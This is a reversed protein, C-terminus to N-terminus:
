CPSVGLDKVVHHRMRVTSSQSRNQVPKLAVSMCTLIAMFGEIQHHADSSSCYSRRMGSHDLALLAGQCHHKSDCLETDQWIRGEYEARQLKERDGVM